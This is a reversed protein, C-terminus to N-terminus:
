WFQAPNTSRGVSSSMIPQLKISVSTGRDWTEPASRWLHKRREIEQYRWRWLTITQCRIGEFSYFFYDVETLWSSLAFFWDAQTLWNIDVNKLGGCGSIWFLHVDSISVQLTKALHEQFTANWASFEPKWAHLQQRQQSQCRRLCPHRQYEATWHQRTYGLWSVLLLRDAADLRDCLINNRSEKRHEPKRPFREVFIRGLTRSLIVNFM